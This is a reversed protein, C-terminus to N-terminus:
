CRRALTRGRAEEAPRLGFVWAPHVADLTRIRMTQLLIRLPRGVQAYAIAHSLKLKRLPAKIRELRDKRARIPIANAGGPGAARLGYGNM